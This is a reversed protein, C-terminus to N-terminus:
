CGANSYRLKSGTGSKRTLLGGIVTSVAGAV